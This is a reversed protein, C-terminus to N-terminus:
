QLFVTEHITLESWDTDIKCSGPKINRIEIAGTEDSIKEEIKGDPLTVKLKIGKVPQGQSDQLKFKIWHQKPDQKEETSPNNQYPCGQIPSSIPPM